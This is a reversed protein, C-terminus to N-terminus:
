PRAVAPRRLRRAVTDIRRLMLPTRSRNWSRRFAAFARAGEREAREALGPAGDRRLRDALLQADHFEGLRDQLTKLRAVIVAVDRDDDLPELLYRLRKGAIRARHAAGADRASRVRRLAAGLALRHERILDATVARMVFDADPGDVRRRVYYTALEEGLREAARPLRRAVSESADAAARRQEGGLATLMAEREAGEADQGQLWALHVEADRADNTDRALRRFARRSKRSVTDDLVAAYARMWSRLRRIAVRVDHLADPADAGLAAAAALVADLRLRAILRAARPAPAALLDPTLQPASM